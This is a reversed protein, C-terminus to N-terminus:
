VEANKRTKFKQPPNFSSRLCMLTKEQKTQNCLIFRHAHFRLMKEQQLNKLLFLCHAQIKLM